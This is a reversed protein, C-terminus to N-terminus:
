ETPRTKNIQTVEYGFFGEALNTPYLGQLSGQALPTLTIELILPNVPNALITYSAFKNSAEITRVTTRVGDMSLTYEGWDGKAQVHTLTQTKTQEDEISTKEESDQDAVRSILKYFADLYGQASGSLDEISALSKDFLGLSIHTGRTSVLENYQESSLWILSSDEILGMDGEVWLDPITIVHANQLSESQVTGSIVYEEYEPTPPDPAETGIPTTAYEAEYADRAERYADTEVATTITWDVTLSNWPDLTSIVLTREDSTGGFWNVIRGGLGMVTPRLILEDSVSLSLSTAAEEASLTSVEVPQCGVGVLLLSALILGTFQGLRTRM